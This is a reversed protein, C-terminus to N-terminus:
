GSIQRHASTCRGARRWELHWSLHRLDALADFLAEHGKRPVLPGVCLLKGGAHRTMVATSEALGGPPRPPQYGPMVVAIWDRPIAYSAVAPRATVRRWWGRMAGLVRRESKTADSLKLAGATPFIRGGGLRPGPGRVQTSVSRAGHRGRHRRLRLWLRPRPLGPCRAAPAASECEEATPSPYTVELM